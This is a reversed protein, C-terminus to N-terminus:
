YEVEFGHKEENSIQLYLGVSTLTKTLLLLVLVVVRLVNVAKTEKRALTDYAIECCDQNNM